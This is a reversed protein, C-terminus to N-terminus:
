PGEITMLNNSSISVQSKAAFPLPPCHPISGEVLDCAARKWPKATEYERRSVKLIAWPKERKLSKLM